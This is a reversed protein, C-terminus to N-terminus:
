SKEKVDDLWSRLDDKIAKLTYEGSTYREKGFIWVTELEVSNHLGDKLLVEVVESDEDIEEVLHSLKKPIWSDVRTKDFM